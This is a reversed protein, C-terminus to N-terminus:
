KCVPPPGYMRFPCSAGSYVAALKTCNCLIRPQRRSANTHCAAYRSLKVGDKRFRAEVSRKDTVSYGLFTNHHNDALVGGKWNPTSQHVKQSSSSANSISIKNLFFDMAEPICCLARLAMSWKDAGKRFAPSLRKTVFAYLFSFKPHPIPPYGGPRLRQRM